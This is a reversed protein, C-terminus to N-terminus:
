INFSTKARVKKGTKPTLFIHVQWTGSMSINVNTTFKGNGLSKAESVSEMYPMGPMAPMFVKVKMTSDKYNKHGVELFITNNGMSLPKESTIEIQTARSKAVKQFAAGHLLSAGLLLALTLKTFTNM